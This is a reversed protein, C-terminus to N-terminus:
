YTSNIDVSSNEIGDLIDEARFILEEKLDTTTIQNEDPMTNQYWFILGRINSEITTGRVENPADDLEDKLEQVLEHIEQLDSPETGDDWKLVRGYELELTERRIKRGITVVDSYWQEIEDEKEKRKDLWIKAYALLLGIALTLIGGALSNIISSSM